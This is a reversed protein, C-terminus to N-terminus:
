EVDVTVFRFRGEREIQLVLHSNRNVGDLLVRLADVSRVTVGNVAHIVDGAALPVERGSPTDERATVLVGSATRLAPVFAANNANLDVGVVGLKPISDIAPDGVDILSANEERAEVVPITVTMTGSGRVIDITATEGPNCRGMALAFTPVDAVPRGNVATVVDEIQIGAAEAPGDPDVDSVLVGTTRPLRLGDALAPTIGQVRVGIVGRHLRGYQRLQPLAAAIVAGPIAFGLGQSGGSDSLIFTNLGILEGDVNVLPGGSNGPNIPADTQIYVAPSDPDLQRAAASVVGMTVSNRLGEPSGFAFVLAGQHVTSADAFPLARLGARDVKLLALDIEPAIGVVRAVLDASSPAAADARGDRLRVHVQQAGAVVHANTVIYGNPDVIAGSGIKRQPAVVLGAAGGGGADLPGYGTAQVQVVSQSVRRTLEEFSASLERLASRPATPRKSQAAVPSLLMPIASALLLGAARRAPARAAGRSPRSCRDTLWRRTM